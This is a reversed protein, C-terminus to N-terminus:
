SPPPPKAPRVVVLKSVSFVSLVLLVELLQFSIHVTMIEMPRASM